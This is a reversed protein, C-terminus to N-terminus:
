RPFKVREIDVRYGEFYPVIGTSEKQIKSMPKM